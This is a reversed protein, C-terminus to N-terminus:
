AQGDPLLRALTKKDPRPLPDDPEEPMDDPFHVGYRRALEANQAACRALIGARLRAGLAHRQRPGSLSADIKRWDHAVGRRNLAAMIAVTRMDPSVNRRKTEPPLDLGTAENFSEVLGRECAQEFGIATVRAFRAWRDLMKLYDVWVLGREKGVFADIHLKERGSKCRQSWWSELFSDQRRLFCLAEIDFHRALDRMADAIRLRPHSLHEESLVLTDAGSADFEALLREREEAFAEPGAKIARWFNLHKRRNPFPPRDTQPYCVGRAALPERNREMLAQLASTGTKHTGIHMLLRKRNSM